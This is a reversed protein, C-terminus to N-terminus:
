RGFKEIQKFKTIADDVSRKDVLFYDMGDKDVRYFNTGDYPLYKVTVDRYEGHYVMTLVPKKDKPKVSEEAKGTFELLFISSYPTLFTQEESEPVVKGDVKWINNNKSGSENEKGDNKPTRTIKMTKNGYTVDYGKLDTALTAYVSVDMSDYADINIVNKVVDGAMTYVNDSGKLRVYYQDDKKAGVYLQFTKYERYKEPIKEAESQETEAGDAAPTPTATEKPTYGDKVDFYKVTIVSAPEGLGYQKMDKCGYEVLEEFTLSNFFSLKSSWGKISAALPEKYPKTINWGSYPSIREQKDAAKAEFETGGKKDVHIYTMYEEKPAPLKDKEILVNRNINFTSFLTENLCYIKDGSSALGYYGGEVPVAIGLEYRYEKGDATLRITMAPTDLGYESLKDNEKDLTKSAKVPNLCQFLGSVSENDLPIKKDEAFQWKGDNKVLSFTTKGSKSVEIKTVSESDIQDVIISDDQKATDGEKENGGRPVVLYLVICGALLVCLGLITFLNKKKKSM